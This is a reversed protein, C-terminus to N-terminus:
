KEKPEFLECAKCLRPKAYFIKQDKFKPHLIKKPKKFCVYSWNYANITARGKGWHKCDKCRPDDAGQIKNLRDVFGRLAKEFLDIEGVSKVSSGKEGHWSAKTKCGKELELTIKFTGKM